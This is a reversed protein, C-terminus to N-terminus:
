TFGGAGMLVAMKANLSADSGSKLKSAGNFYDNMYGYGSGGVGAERLLDLNATPKKKKKGGGRRKGKKAKEVVEEEEEEEDEDESIAAPAV